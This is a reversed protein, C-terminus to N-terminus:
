LRGSNPVPDAVRYFRKFAFWPIVRSTCFVLAAVGVIFALVAWPSEFAGSRWLWKGLNYIGIGLLVHLFSFLYGTSGAQLTTQCHACQIRRARGWLFTSLSLPRNGCKPCRM